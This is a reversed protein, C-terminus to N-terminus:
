LVLPALLFELQGSREVGEAVVRMRFSKALSIIGRTIAADDPILVVFEDGGHRSVTDTSRLVVDSKLHKFGEIMCSLRCEASELQGQLRTVLSSEPHDSM